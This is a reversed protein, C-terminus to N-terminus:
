VSSALGRLEKAIKLYNIFMREEGEGLGLFTVAFGRVGGEDSGEVVRVVEARVHLPNTTGPLHMEISIRAGLEPLEDSLFLVGNKSVDVSQTRFIRTGATVIVLLNHSFRRNTRREEMPNAVAALLASYDRHIPPTLRLGMEHWATIHFEVQLQRVWAVTAVVEVDGAERSITFTGSFGPPHLHRTRLCFGEPSLNSVYGLEGGEGSKWRVALACDSRRDVRRNAKDFRLPIDM